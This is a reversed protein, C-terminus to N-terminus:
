LCQRTPGAVHSSFNDYVLLPASPLTKILIWPKRGGGGWWCWEWGASWGKIEGACVHSAIARHYSVAVVKGRRRRWGAGWDWGFRKGVVEFGGFSWMWDDLGREGREPGQRDFESVWINALSEIALRQHVGEASELVKCYLFKTAGFARVHMIWFIFAVWFLATIKRQGSFIHVQWFVM